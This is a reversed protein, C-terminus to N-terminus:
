PAPKNDHKRIDDTLLLYPQLHAAEIDTAARFMMTLLMDLQQRATLRFFAETLTIQTGPGAAWTDIGATAKTFALQRGGIAEALRSYRQRMGAVALQDAQPPVVPPATLGFRNAVLRM